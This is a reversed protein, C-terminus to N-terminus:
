RHLLYGDSCHISLICTMVRLRAFFSASTNGTAATTATAAQLELEELLEGLAALEGADEDAELAEALELALEDLPPEVEPRL